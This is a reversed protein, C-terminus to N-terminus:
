GRPHHKRHMERLEERSVHTYIQTSALDAHGLLEQIARLDAGGDLLHTAFTHRLAHPSRDPLGKARLLSLFIRRVHSRTLRNGRRNVLLATSHRTGSVYVQDFIRSKERIWLNLLQRSPANIPVRRTKDGKGLVEMAVRETSFNIADLRCLESVRLGSGYLLEIILQDRLELSGTEITNSFLQDIEQHKLVEPLRAPGKPPRINTTPDLKILGSQHLWGFYRRLASLKRAITAPASAPKKISENAAWGRIEIRGIAFPDSHGHEESWEIFGNLDRKYAAKTAKSGCDFVSRFRRRTVSGSECRHFTGICTVKLGSQLAGMSKVGLTLTLLDFDQTIAMLPLLAGDTCVALM